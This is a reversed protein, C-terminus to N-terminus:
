NEIGLSDLMELIKNEEGGPDIVMAEKSKEDEVIYCNTLLGILETKVPLIKLIM